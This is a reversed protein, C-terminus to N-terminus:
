RRSCRTSAALTGGRLLLRAIRDGGREAAEDVDVRGDVLDRLVRYEDKTPVQGFEKRFETTIVYGRSPLPINNTADMFAGIVRNEYYKGKVWTATFRLGGRRYMQYQFPWYNYRDTHNMAFFVGVDRPINEVGVLEIQTRRPFRYDPRLGLQGILIQALPREHLRIRELRALDLM